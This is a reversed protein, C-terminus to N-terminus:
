TEKARKYNAKRQKEKKRWEKWRNKRDKMIEKEKEWEKKGKRKFWGGASKGKDKLASPSNWWDKVPPLSM